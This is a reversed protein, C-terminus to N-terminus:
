ARNDDSVTHVAATVAAFVASVVAAVAAVVAPVATLVAAVTLWKRFHRPRGSEHALGGDFSTSLRSGGGKQARPAAAASGLGSVNSPGSLTSIMWFFSM